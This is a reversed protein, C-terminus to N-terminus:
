YSEIPTMKPSLENARKRAKILAREMIPGEPAILWLAEALWEAQYVLLPRIRRQKLGRREFYNARNSNRQRRGRGSIPKNSPACIRDWM